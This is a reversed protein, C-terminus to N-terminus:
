SNESLRRPIEEKLDEVFKEQVVKVQEGTAFDKVQVSGDALEDDGLILVRAAGARHASRLQAKLSRDELDTQVAFGQGRLTDALEMAPIRAAATASAVFFDPGIEEV